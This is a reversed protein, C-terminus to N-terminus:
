HGGFSRRVRNFLIADALDCVAELLMSIGIFRLLLLSSSFPNILIVVGLVLMLVAGTLSFYWRPYGMRSLGLAVELQLIGCAILAFGILLPIVTILSEPMLVIILGGALAILGTSFLREALVVQTRFYAVIKWIGYVMLLGGGIYCLVNASLSPFFTLAIGLVLFWLIRTLTGGKPLDQKFETFKSM